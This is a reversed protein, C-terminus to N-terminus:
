WLLLRLADSPFFVRWSPRAVSLARRARSLEMVRCAASSAAVAAVYPAASFADCSLWDLKSLSSPKFCFCSSRSVCCLRYSRAYLRYELLMISLLCNLSIVPM